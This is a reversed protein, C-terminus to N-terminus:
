ACSPLDQRPALLARALVGLQQKNASNSAFAQCIAAYLRRRASRKHLLSVVREVRDSPRSQDSTPHAMM